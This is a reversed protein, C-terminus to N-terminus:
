CIWVTVAQSGLSDSGDDLLVGPLGRCAHQREHRDTCQIAGSAQMACDARDDELCEFSAAYAPSAALILACALLKGPLAIM